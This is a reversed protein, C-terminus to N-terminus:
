HLYVDDALNLNYVVSILREASSVRSRSLSKRGSTVECNDLDLLFQPILYLRVKFLLVTKQQCLLYLLNLDLSSLLELLCQLGESGLEVLEFALLLM